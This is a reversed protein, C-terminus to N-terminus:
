ISLCVNLEKNVALAAKAESKANFEIFAFGKLQNTTQYKPLSIYSVM